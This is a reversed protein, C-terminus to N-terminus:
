DNTWEMYKKHVYDATPHWHHEDLFLVPTKHPNWNEEYRLRNEPKSWVVHPIKCLSSLHMPGSSPGFVCKAGAAISFLEGLPIGRLDTTGEIHLSEEKSGICACTGGLKQLLTGWKEVSWNDQERLQRNRAHFIFDYHQETEKGSFIIYEPTININGFTFQETYHTEPPQGIRRPAFLTTKEDFQINNEGIIKKLENGLDIGHMFFADPAGTAINHFHFEDAFDQYIDKSGERCLVITKAYHRSLRRVYAQWAFLEWGFEGVWPGAVLTRDFKM